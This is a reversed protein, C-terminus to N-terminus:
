QIENEPMAARSRILTRASKLPISLMLTTGTGVQSDIRLEGGIASIRERMGMLGFSNPKVRVTARMGIGDDAIKMFLRDGVRELSIHVNRAKAHRAVNTLSEQVIRFLTTTQDDRLGADLEAADASLVCVIGSRREFESAQWQIAAYLGLDLVVPRLNNIIHRVSRIIGDINNLVADLKEHLLPHQGATRARLMEVDIRLALLNQGMEDHIERAIRKREQEKIHVQHAALRRLTEEAEKHETIDIASGVLCEPKGDQSRIIEAQSMVHCLTGDPRVIRMSVKYEKGEEVAREIANVVADCDEPHVIKLFAQMSPELAGPELGCMRFFADSWRNRGTTLHHEWSGVHGIREASTLMYQTHRLSEAAHRQAELEQSLQANAKLLEAIRTEATAQVKKPASSLRRGPRALFVFVAYLAYLFICASLIGGSIQMTQLARRASERLSALEAKASPEAQALFRFLPSSFWDFASDISKKNQKKEATSADSRIQEAIEKILDLHPRHWWAGAPLSATTQLLAGLAAPMESSPTDAVDLYLRVVALKMRELQTLAEQVDDASQQAHQYTYLSHWLMGICLLPILLAGMLLTASPKGNKIHCTWVNM